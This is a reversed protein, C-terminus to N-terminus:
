AYTFFGKGAAKGTWGARMMQKLLVCPRYREQEYERRLGDLILTVVGIGIEDAWALLGKPYNVGLQMAKDIDEPTALGEMVAFAAENILMALVRIQVLGVRDEVREVTYGLRHLLALAHQVHVDVTNLGASMDITTSTTMMSPLLSVGVIRNAVNALMGLETATNTLASAIVTARPNVSSAVEVTIKRDFHASVSLDIIHTYKGANGRVDGVVRDAFPGYEAADLAADALQQDVLDLEVDLEDMEDMSPLINFPVDHRDLIGAFEVVFDTDGTLLVNFTEGEPLNYVTMPHSLVYSRTM